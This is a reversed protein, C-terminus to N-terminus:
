LPKNILQTIISGYAKLGGIEVYAQFSWIGELDIEGNIANFVLTTGIKNATWSGHVGNPKRYRVLPNTATSIDYNTELVISINTQGKFLQSM